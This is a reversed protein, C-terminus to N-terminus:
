PERRAAEGAREREQVHGLHVLGAMTIAALILALATM